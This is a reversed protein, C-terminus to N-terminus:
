VPVYLLRACYNSYSFSSDRACTWFWLGCSLDHLYGGFWVVANGTTQWYYDPIYTSDSGGSTKPLQIGPYNSDYGMEKIYGDSSANTYGVAKYDGSFVDCTYGDRNTSVYAKRSKINIGDIFQFVNGFIDEIGRYIVSHKKDDSTCGSKMKLSDCGGTATKSGNSIGNGLKSQSNYDAYEVLYLMQIASIRWIDLLGWNTGINKAATRFNAPTVSGLITQGSKSALASTSGSADYRSIYFAESKTFDEYEADAIYIKEYGNEQVRKYWFQPVYTMIYGKPNTLSFDADGMRSNITGNKALDVTIIDSWPYLSDFDNTASGGTKTANANLSSAGEIRTWATSSSSIQRQVGYVTVSKPTATFRNATNSNVSGYESYPFLQFYYTIDNQLGTIKFGNTAYQGAVQNDVAITGDNVNSPYSGAKYVLKTGQWNTTPDNWAVTVEANGAKVNIDTVDGPPIAVPTVNIENTENSNLVNDASYIFFRLYYTTDNTLGTITYGTTKYKDRTSNDIIVTGDKVSTPYSGVKMVVVTNKWRSVMVGDIEKDTPDSYKLTATTDGATISIGTVDNPRFFENDAISGGNDIDKWTGDQNQIQLQGNYYRLGNFGTESNIQASLKEEVTDGDDCLVNSGKTIPYLIDTNGNSKNNMLIDKETTAM